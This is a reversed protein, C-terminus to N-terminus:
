EPYWRAHKPDWAAFNCVFRILYEELTSDDTELGHKEHCQYLVDSGRRYFAWGNLGRTDYDWVVPLLSEPPPVAM